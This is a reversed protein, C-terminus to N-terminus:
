NQHGVFEDAISRLRGRLATMSDEEGPQYHVLSGGMGVAVAGANFWQLVTERTIGGTPFFRATPMPGRLHQLAERGLVTAPFWKVISSGLELCRDVETPTAAGLIYPVQSRQGIDAVVESVKYTILLRAGVDVAKRVQDEQQLTGVGLIANPHRRALTEVLRFVNPITTTLEIIRFGADWAAEAIQQAALESTTRIVPVVRQQELVQFEEDM